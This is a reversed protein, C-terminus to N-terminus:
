RSLYTALQHSQNYVPGLAMQLMTAAYFLLRNLLLNGPSQVKSMWAAPSPRITPTSRVDSSRLYALEGGGDARGGCGGSGSRRM